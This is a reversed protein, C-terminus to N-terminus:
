FTNGTTMLDIVISEGVVPPDTFIIQNNELSVAYDVDMKMRLGSVYVRVTESSYIEWPLTFNTIIGDPTENVSIGYKNLNDVYNRPVLTNDGLQSHLWSEYQLLKNKEFLVKRSSTITGMTPHTRTYVYLKITDSNLHVQSVNASDGYNWKYFELSTGNEYPVNKAPDDYITDVNVKLSARVRIDNDESAWGSYVSTHPYRASTLAGSLGTYTSKALDNSFLTVYDKSSEFEVSYDGDSYQYSQLQGISPDYLLYNDWTPNHFDFGTGSFEIDWSTSVTGGPKIVNDVIEVGNSATFDAGIANKFTASDLWSVTNDANARLYRVASPNTSTFVNSGVTTAGLSTRGTAAVLGTAGGDWKLRDSYATNWDGSNDGVYSITGATSKVLGTGSLTAQKATLSDQLGDVNSIVHNHSDDVVAPSALTGSLDGTLSFSSTIYGSDNTWQSINSSSFDSVGLGSITAGTHNHSDDEVDGSIAPTADDYTFVIDGVLGNDLITGVADQADENTYGGASTIADDVYGKTVLMGNDSAGTTIDTLTLGDFSISNTVNLTQTKTGGVVDLKTSPIGGVGVNGTMRYINGSSETWQSFLNSSGETIDDSNILGGENTSSHDHQSLSFDTIAPSDITKNILTQASTADVYQGTLGLPNHSANDMYTGDDNFDGVNIASTATFELASEGANVRALKLAQSAYSSPTDNLDLFAISSTSTGGGVGTSFRLDIYDDGDSTAIIKANVSNTLVDATNFIVTGILAVDKVPIQGYLIDFAEQEAAAQASTLTTYNNQGLIVAYEEGTGTDINNSAIVHMLVYSNNVAETLQWAGGAYQNYAMRGTGTTILPFTTRSLLWNGDVGTKYYADLGATSVITSTSTKIDQNWLSGSAVGFQAHSDLSGNGDSIISTLACGDSIRCGDTDYTYAIFRPPSKITHRQNGIYIAQAASVSWYIKCISAHNEYIHITEDNTPNVIETMQDGDFHIFHVGEVDSIQLSDPGTIYKIGKEYYYFDSGTTPEIKVRRNANDWTIITYLDSSSNFGTISITEATYQNVNPDVFLTTDNQIEGIYVVYQGNSPPVNVLEGVGLYIDDGEAFGLSVFDGTQDGWLTAYGYEGIGIEETTIGILRSTEYTTCDAIEFMGSSLYVPTNNPIIQGTNNLARKVGEQGLNLNLTPSETFYTLAHKLTDYYIKGERATVQDPYIPNFVVSDTPSGLAHQNFYRLNVADLSDIPDALNKFEYEGAIAGPAILTDISGSKNSYIRNELKMNRVNIDTAQSYGLISVSALIISILIRKM